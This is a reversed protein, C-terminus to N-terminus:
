RSLAVYAKMETAYSTNQRWNGLDVIAKHSARGTISDVTSAFHPQLTFGQSNITVDEYLTWQVNTPLM